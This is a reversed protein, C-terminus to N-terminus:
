AFNRGNYEKPYLNNKFSTQKKFREVNCYRHNRYIFMDSDYAIRMNFINYKRNSLLTNKPCFGIYIYTRM